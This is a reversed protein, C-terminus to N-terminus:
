NGGGEQTQTVNIINSYYNSSGSSSNQIVEDHYATTAM